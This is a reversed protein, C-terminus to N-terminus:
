AALKQGIRPFVTHPQGDTASIVVSKASVGDVPAASVFEWTVGVAPRMDGSGDENETGEFLAIDLFGPDGNFTIGTLTASLDFSHSPDVSVGAKSFLLQFEM